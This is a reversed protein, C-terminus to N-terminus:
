NFLMIMQKKRNQGQRLRLDFLHAREDDYVDEEADTARAPPPSFRLLDTAGLGSSCKDDDTEDTVASLGRFFLKQDKRYREDEDGYVCWAAVDVIYVLPPAAALLFDTDTADTAHADRPPDAGPPALACSCGGRATVDDADARLSSTIPSGSLGLWTDDDDDKPRFTARDRETPHPLRLKEPSKRSRM